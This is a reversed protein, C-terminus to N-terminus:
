TMRFIMQRKEFRHMKIKKSCEANEKDRTRSYVCFNKPYYDYIPEVNNLYFIM